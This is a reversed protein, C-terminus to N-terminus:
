QRMGYPTRPNFDAGILFRGKLREDCGTLPAHISIKHFVVDDDDFNPRMGYPTRPNFYRFIQLVTDQIVDCGTLPAHISIALPGEDPRSFHLRMGYPTRPNFYLLQCENNVEKKQRMGYPTRPNFNSKCFRYGHRYNDCGTLPAHISIDKALVFDNVRITADRLPHTSQFIMMVFLM